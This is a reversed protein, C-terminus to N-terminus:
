HNHACSHFAEVIDSCALAFTLFHSFFFIFIFSSFKRGEREKALFLYPFCSARGLSDKKNERLCKLLADAEAECLIQTQKLSAVEQTLHNAAAKVENYLAEEDEDNREFNKPVNEEDDHEHRLVEKALFEETPEVLPHVEEVKTEAQGM